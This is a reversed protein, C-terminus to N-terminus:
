MLNRNSKYDYSEKLESVSTDTEERVLALGQAGNDKVKLYADSM